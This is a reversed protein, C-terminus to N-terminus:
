ETDSDESSAVQLTIDACCGGGTPFCRVTKRRHERAHGADEDISGGSQGGRAGDESGEETGLDTGEESSEVYAASAITRASGSGNTRASRAKSTRAPPSPSRSARDSAAPRGRRTIGLGRKAEFELVDGTFVLMFSTLAFHMLHGTIAPFARVSNPPWRANRRSRKQRARRRSGACASIPYCDVSTRSRPKRRGGRRRGDAHMVSTRLSSSATDM